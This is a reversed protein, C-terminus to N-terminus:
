DGDCDGMEKGPLKTSRSGASLGQRGLTWGVLNAVIPKTQYPLGPKPFSTSTKGLGGIAENPAPQGPDPWRVRRHFSAAPHNHGFDHYPLSNRRLQTRKAAALDARNAENPAPIQVLAISLTPSPIWRDGQGRRNRGADAFKACNPENRAPGHPLRFALPERHHPSLETMLGKRFIESQSRKALCDRPMSLSEPFTKALGPPAANQLGPRSGRSPDRPSHPRRSGM